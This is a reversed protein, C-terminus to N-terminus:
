QVRERSIALGKPLPGMNSTTRNGPALKCGAARRRLSFFPVTGGEATAAPAPGNGLVTGGEATAAPTAARLAAGDTVAANASVADLCGAVSRRCAFASVAVASRTTNFGHRRALDDFIGHATLP